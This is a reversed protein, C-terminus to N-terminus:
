YYITYVYHNLNDRTYSRDFSSYRLSLLKDIAEHEPDKTILIVTYRRNKLYLEDDAKITNIDSLEYRIAPYVMTVNSPPQFYVHRSGLIECLIEHLELRNKM